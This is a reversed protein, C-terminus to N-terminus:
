EFEEVHPRLSPKTEKWDASRLFWAGILCPIKPFEEPPSTSRSEVLRGSWIIRPHSFLYALGGIPTM